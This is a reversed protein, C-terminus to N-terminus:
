TANNRYFNLNKFFKSTLKQHIFFALSRKFSYLQACFKLNSVQLFQNLFYVKNKLILYLIDKRLQLDSFNYKKFVDFFFLSISSKFASITSRLVSGQILNILFSTKVHLQKLSKSSNNAGKKNFFHFSLLKKKKLLHKIKEINYKNALFNM